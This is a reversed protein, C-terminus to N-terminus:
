RWRTIVIRLGNDYACVNEPIMGSHGKFWTNVVKHCMEFALDVVKWYFGLRLHLSRLLVCDVARFKNESRGQAYSQTALVCRLVRKCARSSGGGRRRRRYIWWKSWRPRRLREGQEGCRAADRQAESIGTVQMGACHSFYLWVVFYLPRNLHIIQVLLLLRSFEHFRKVNNVM